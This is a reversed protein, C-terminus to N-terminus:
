RGVSGVVLDFIFLFSFCYLAVKAAEFAHRQANLEEQLRASSSCELQLDARLREIETGNVAANSLSTPLPDSDSSQTEQDQKQYLKSATQAM